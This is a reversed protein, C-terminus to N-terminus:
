VLGRSKLELYKNITNVTLTQPKTLVSHIGFKNLENVIQRKEYVFQEAITKAYIGETSNAKKSTLSAMETNEFFVVVLLHIKSLLKLYPLQRELATISEFNTYFVLLSRQNIERKVKIYVKEFDSEQFDTEQRYLTELIKHMQLRNDNAVIFSNVRQSFTVLGARDKKFIAINALVLSANIAYDLLTMGDFPMKMIRGKDIISYIQQSKEEQYQNVMLQNKRATAQWNVSRYDDGIVYEKIQDFEMNHGIRRIKKIGVDALRNSIAMIEYKRLQLFAPYVPVMTSAEQVVRREVLGIVNSVFVNINGFFYEGREVPRLHYTIKQEAGAKLLTTHRFSRLQFQVPAEDVIVANIWFLFNNKVTIEVPNEDGNSLKNTTNRKIHLPAQWPPQRNTSMYLLVFDLVLMSVVVFLLIKGVAFMSPVGFGLLMFCIIAILTTYFRSTFFLNKFFLM